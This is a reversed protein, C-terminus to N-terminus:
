LIGLKPTDPSGEKMLTWNDDMQMTAQQYYRGDTWLLAKNHTILATGWSGNFGSIFSRYEDCQAIYESFHADESPVIYADIPESVYQPDKMLGRLQKLLDSTPKRQMKHTVLQSLNLLPISVRLLLSENHLRNFLYTSLYLIKRM